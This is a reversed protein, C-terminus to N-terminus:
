VVERERTFHIKATGLGGFEAVFTGTESAPHARTLGGTLVISGAKLSEGREGLRNALWVIPRMPDGLANAGMGRDLIRGDRWLLVGALRLDPVAQLAVPCGLVFRAASSNDATNDVMRFRYDLYRSDVIELAGFAWRVAPYVEAPTLGPGSLDREVLLAIEPEVRPHILESLRVTGADADVRMSGTLRGYNPAEIGMQQRMAASTFGLKYGVCREGKLSVLADQIRYADEETLDPHTDTLPSVAVRTREAALLRRATDTVSVRVQM